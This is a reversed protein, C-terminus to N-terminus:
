ERHSADALRGASYSLSKTSLQAIHQIMMLNALCTLLGKHFQGVKGWVFGATTRGPTEMAKELEALSKVM